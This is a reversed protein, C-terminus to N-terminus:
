REVGGLSKLVLNNLFLFHFPGGSVKTSLLQIALLGKCIPFVQTQGIVYVIRIMVALMEGIKQRNNYHFFKIFYKYLWSAM